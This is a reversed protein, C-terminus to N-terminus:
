IAVGYARDLPTVSEEHVYGHQHESQHRDRTRSPRFRCLWELEDNEAIGQTGTEAERGLLCERCLELFGQLGFTYLDVHGIGPHGAVGGGAAAVPEVPRNRVSGFADDDLEAGVI